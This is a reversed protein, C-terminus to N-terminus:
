GTGRLGPRGGKSDGLTTRVRATSTAGTSFRSIEEREGLGVLALVKGVKQSLEVPADPRQLGIQSCKLAIQGEREGVTRLDVV